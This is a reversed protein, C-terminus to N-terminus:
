GKLEWEVMIPVSKCNKAWDELEKPTPTWGALPKAILSLRQTHAVPRWIKGVFDNFGPLLVAIQEGNFDIEGPGAGTVASPTPDPTPPTYDLALLQGPTATGDAPWTEWWPQIDGWADSDEPHDPQNQYNANQASGKWLTSLGSVGNADRWGPLQSAQIPASTIFPDGTSDQV